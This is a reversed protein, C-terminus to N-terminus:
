LSKKRKSFNFSRTSAVASGLSSVPTVTVDLLVNIESSSYYKVEYVGDNLNKEDAYLLVNLSEESSKISVYFKDFNTLDDDRPKKWRITLCHKDKLNEQKAVFNM